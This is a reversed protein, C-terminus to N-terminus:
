LYMGNVLYDGDADHALGRRVGMRGRRLRCLVLGCLGLTLLVGVSLTFVAM